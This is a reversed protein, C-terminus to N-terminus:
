ADRDEYVSSRYEGKALKDHNEVLFEVDDPLVEERPDAVLSHLKELARGIM